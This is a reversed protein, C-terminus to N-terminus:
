AMWKKGLKYDYIFPVILEPVANVFAEKTIGLVDDLLSEMFEEVLSDHLTAVLGALSGEYMTIKNKIFQDRIYCGIMQTADSSASQIPFNVIEGVIDHPNFEGISNFLHIPFRRCRGFINRIIGKNLATYVLEDQWAKTVHYRNFFKNEVLKAEDLTINCEKALTYEQMGYMVGLFATKAIKRRPSEKTLSDYDIKWVDCAFLIYIDKGSNLDAILQPDKTCTALMRVEASVVDVELLINGEGAIFMNRMEETKPTNHVNPESSSLRGTEVVHMNYNSRLRGDVCLHKKNGKIYTKHKKNVGRYDLLINLFDNNCSKAMLNISEEDTSPNNAPPPTRKVIPLKFQDFLIVGLQQPSNPNFEKGALRHMEAIAVKLQGEYKIGLKNVYDIDLKFGREECEMLNRQVPMVCRHFFSLLGEKELEKYFINHIRFTCDADGGAYGLMLDKPIYVYEGKIHKNKNFFNDLGREYDGMDTYLCALIKLGHMGNASEHLCHHALITDFYFNNVDWGKKRLFKCDFKGNHAIKKVNNAFMKKLEDEVYQQNERWFPTCTKDINALDKKKLKLPVEKLDSIPLVVATGEIWSFSICIISDGLFDFGTTEIDFAFADVKGLEEMLLNFNDLTEIWVYRTSMKEKGNVINLARELDSLILMEKSPNVLVASPHFTPFVICQFDESYHEKGRFKTIGSKGLLARSAVNGFPIIIKKNRLESLESLLNERCANIYEPMPTFNMGDKTYRCKVAHTFYCDDFSINSKRLFYEILERMKGVFPKKYIEEEIEPQECVFVIQADKNGIGWMCNVNSTKSLNCKNCIMKNVRRQLFHRIKQSSAQLTYCVSPQSWDLIKAIAIQSLNEIYTLYLCKFEDETLVNTAIEWLENLKSIKSLRLKQLEEFSLGCDFLKNELLDFNVTERYFSSGNNM